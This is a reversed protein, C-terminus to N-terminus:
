HQLFFQHIINTYGIVMPIYAGFFPSRIGSISSILWSSMEGSCSSPMTWNTRGLWGKSLGGLYWRTIVLMAMSFGWAILNPLGDIEIPWRNGMAINTMVLPYGNTSRKKAAVMYPLWRGCSLQLGQFLHFDRQLAVPLHGLRRTCGKVTQFFPFHIFIASRPLMALNIISEHINLNTILWSKEYCVRLKGSPIRTAPRQCEHNRKSSSWIACCFPRIRRAGRCLLQSCCSNRDSSNFFVHWWSKWPFILKMHFFPPSQVFGIDSYSGCRPDKSRQLCCLFHYLSYRPIGTSSHLSWNRSNLPHKTRNNKKRLGYSIMPTSTPPKSCTKNKRIKPIIMGVSKWTKWIPQFWWGTSYARFIMMFHIVFHHSLKNELIKELSGYPKVVPAWKRIWKKLIRFPSEDVVWSYWAMGWTCSECIIRLPHPCEGAADHLQPHQVFCEIRQYVYLFSNFIAMSKTLKGM